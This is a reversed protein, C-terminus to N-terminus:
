CRLWRKVARWIVKGSWIEACDDPQLPLTDLLMGAVSAATPNRGIPPPMSRKVQNIVLCRNWSPRRRGLSQRQVELTIAATEIVLPRRIPPPLTRKAQKIALPVLFLEPDGPLPGFEVAPRRADDQCNQLGIQPPSATAAAAAAVTEATHYSILDGSQSDVLVNM